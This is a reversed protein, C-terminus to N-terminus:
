IMTPALPCRTPQQAHGRCWKRVGSVLVATGLRVAGGARASQQRGVRRQAQGGNQSGDVGEAVPQEEREADEVEGPDDAEVRGRDPQPQRDRTQTPDAHGGPDGGSPRRVPPTGPPDPGQQPGARTEGHRRVGQHVRVGPEEDRHDARGPQLHRAASHLARQVGVHQRRRCPHLCPRIQARHRVDPHAHAACQAGDCQLHVRPARVQRHDHQVRQGERTRRQQHGPQRQRRM